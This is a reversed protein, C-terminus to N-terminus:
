TAKPIRVHRSTCCPDGIAISFWLIYVVYSLVSSSYGLNTCKTLDPDRGWFNYCLCAVTRAVQWWPVWLYSAKLPSYNHAKWHWSIVKFLDLFWWWGWHCIFGWFSMIDGRYVWCLTCLIQFSHETCTWIFVNQIRFSSEDWSGIHVIVWHRQKRWRFLVNLLHESTHRLCFM